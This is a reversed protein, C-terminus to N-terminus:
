TCAYKSIEAESFVSIVFLQQVVNCRDSCAHFTIGFDIKGAAYLFADIDLRNLTETGACNLNNCSLQLGDFVQCHFDSGPKLSTNKKYSSSVDQLGL